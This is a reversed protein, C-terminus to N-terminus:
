QYNVGGNAGSDASPSVPATQPFAVVYPFDSFPKALHFEITHTDPTTVATLGMLNKARDKFPGQYHAANGGLLNQFYSPGNPLV